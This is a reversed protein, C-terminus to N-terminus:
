SVQSASQRPELGEKKQRGGARLRATLQRDAALLPLFSSDAGRGCAGDCLGCVTLLGCAAAWRAVALWVRKELFFFNRKGQWCALRRNMKCLPDELHQNKCEAKCCSCTQGRAWASVFGCTPHFCSCGRVWGAVWRSERESLM